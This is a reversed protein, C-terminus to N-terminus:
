SLKKVIEFKHKFNNKVDTLRTKFEEQMLYFKSIEWINDINNKQNFDDIIKKSNWINSHRFNNQNIIENILGLNTDSNLNRKFRALGQRFNQNFIEKPLLSDFSDRLISKLKGNKIKKELPLSLSYLYVNKDLFPSRIEVASAMSARDWKSLLLQVFGCHTRFYTFQFELNFNKLMELDKNILLKSKDFNLNNPESFIYKSFYNKKNTLNEFNFQLYQKAEALGGFIRKIQEKQQETGYTNLIENSEVINNYTNQSLQFIFSPLGLFEDPGM